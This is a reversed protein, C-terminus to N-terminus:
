VCKACEREKGWWSSRSARVLMARFTNRACIAAIVLTVLIAFSTIAVAAFVLTKELNTEVSIVYPSMTIKDAEWIRDEFTDM